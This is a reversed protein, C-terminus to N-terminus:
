MNKTSESEGLMLGLCKGSLVRSRLARYPTDWLLRLLAFLQDRAPWVIASGPHDPAGFLILLFYARTLAKPQM